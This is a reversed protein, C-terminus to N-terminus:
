SCSIHIRSCGRRIVESTVRVALARNKLRLHLADIDEKRKKKHKKYNLEDYVMTKLRKKVIAVQSGRKYENIMNDPAGTMVMFQFALSTSNPDWISFEVLGMELKIRYQMYGYFM